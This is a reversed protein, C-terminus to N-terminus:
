RATMSTQINFDAKNNQRTEAFGQVVMLVTAKAPSIAGCNSLWFALNTVHVEAATLPIVTSHTTGDAYHYNINEVIQNNQLGYVISSITQGSPLGLNLYSTPSVSLSLAPAPSAQSLSSPLSSCTGASSGNVVASYGAYNSGSRVTEAMTELATDLNEMVSNISRSKEGADVMSFLAGVAITIIISFILLSILVEILTFGAIPTKKKMFMKM